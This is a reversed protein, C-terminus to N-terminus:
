WYGQMRQVLTDRLNNPGTYLRMPTGDKEKMHAEFATVFAKNGLAEYPTCGLPLTVYFCNELYARGLSGLDRSINAFAAVSNNAGNPSILYDAITSVQDYNLGASSERTQFQLPNNLSLGALLFTKDIKLRGAQARSALAEYLWIDFSFAPLGSSNLSHYFGHNLEHRFVTSFWSQSDRWRDKLRIETRPTAAFFTSPSSVVILRKERTPSIAVATIGAPKENQICLALKEGVFGVTQPSVSQLTKELLIEKEAYVASEIHDDASVDQASFVITNNQEIVFTSLTRACGGNGIAAALTAYFPSPQPVSKRLM